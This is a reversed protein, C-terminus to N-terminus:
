RAIATSLYEVASQRWNLTVHAAVMENDRKARSVPHDPFGAKAGVLLSIRQVARLAIRAVLANDRKQAGLDAASPAEHREAQRAAEASRSEVLLRAMETEGYAEAFETAVYDQDALTMTGGLANAVRTNSAGTDLFHEAAGLASGVAVGSFTFRSYSPWPAYLASFTPHLERREQLKVVTDKTAQVRHEPVFVDDVVKTRSGSGRLGTPYWDDVTTADSAPVIFMHGEGDEGAPANFILWESFDSGSCFGWSGSLRYGGPVKEVRAKRNLNTNGALTAYGDSGWIEDQTEEPYACIAMNDSSLISYVWATSACGRALTVVAKAHEHETLELGGYKKPKLIHLLGAEQVARYTEAHIRRDRDVEAARSRLTPVLAEAAALV